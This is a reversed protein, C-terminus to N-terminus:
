VLDRPGAARALRLTESAAAMGRTDPVPHAAEWSEVPLPAPAHGDPITVMGASVREGLVDLVGAAMGGAAKGAGLVLVRDTEALDVVERGGVRLREGELVLARAVAARPEAAAIAADLIVRAHPRLPM